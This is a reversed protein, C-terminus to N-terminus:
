GYKRPPGVNLSVSQGRGLAGLTTALSLLYPQFLVYSPIADSADFGQVM